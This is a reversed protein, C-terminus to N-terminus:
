KLSKVTIECFYMGRLLDCLQRWIGDGTIPLVNEGYELRAKAYLNERGKWCKIRASFGGPLEFPGV